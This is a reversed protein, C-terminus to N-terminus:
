CKFGKSNALMYKQAQDKVFSNIIEKVKYEEFIEYAEEGDVFKSNDDFAFSEM